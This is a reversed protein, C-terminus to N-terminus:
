GEADIPFATLLSVVFHTLGLLVLITLALTEERLVLLPVVLLAFALLYDLAAHVKTPLVKAVGAPGRSLIAVALIVIGTAIFILFAPEGVEFLLFPAVILFIGAVYEIGEHVPWPLLRLASPGGSSTARDM